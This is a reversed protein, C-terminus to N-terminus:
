DGSPLEQLGSSRHCNATLTSRGTGPNPSLKAKNTQAGKLLNIREQAIVQWAERTQRGWAEPVVIPPIPLEYILRKKSDLVVELLGRLFM